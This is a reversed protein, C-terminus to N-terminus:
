GGEVMLKYLPHDPSDIIRGKFALEVMRDFGMEPWAPDPLSIQPEYYDYRGESVNPAVRVWIGQAVEAIERASATWDNTRGDGSPVSLQWLFIEGQRNISALLEVLRTDEPALTAALDDDIWYVDKGIDQQDVFVRALQRYDEESHVRIWEQRGPKRVRLTTQKRQQQMLQSYDQGVRQQKMRDLLSSEQQGAPDGGSLAAVSGRVSSDSGPTTVAGDNASINLNDTKNEM